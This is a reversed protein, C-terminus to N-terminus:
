NTGGSQKSNSFHFTGNILDLHPYTQSVLHLKLSSAREVCRKFLFPPPSGPGAMRRHHQHKNSRFFLFQPCRNTRFSLTVFHGNRIWGAIQDTRTPEGVSMESKRLIPDFYHFYEHSFWTFWNEKVVGDLAMKIKHTGREYYASPESGTEDDYIQFHIPIIEDSSRSQIISNVLNSNPM